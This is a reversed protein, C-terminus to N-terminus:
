PDLEIGFRDEEVEESGKEKFCDPEHDEFREFDLVEQPSSGIGSQVVEEAMSEEEKIQDQVQSKLELSDSSLM